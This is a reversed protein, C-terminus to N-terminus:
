DGFLKDEDEIGVRSTCLVLDGALFSDGSADVVLRGRRVDLGGGRPERVLVYELTRERELEGLPLSDTDNELNPLDRVLLGSPFGETVYSSVLDRTTWASEGVM